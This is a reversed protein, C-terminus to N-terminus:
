KAPTMMVTSSIAASSWAPVSPGSIGPSGCGSGEATGSGVGSVSLVSDPPASLIGESVGPSDLPSIASESMEGSGVTECTVSVTVSLASDCQFIFKAKHDSSSIFIDTIPHPFIAPAIM